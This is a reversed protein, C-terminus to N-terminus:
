RRSRTVHRYKGLIPVRRNCLLEGNRVFTPSLTVRLWTNMAVSCSRQRWAHLKVLSREALVDSADGNIELFGWCCVHDVASLGAPIRAAEERISHVTDDICRFNSGFRLRM